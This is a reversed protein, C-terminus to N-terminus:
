KKELIGNKFIYNWQDLTRIHVMKQCLPERAFIRLLEPRMKTHMQHITKILKKTHALTFEFSGVPLELRPSFLNGLQRKLLWWYHRWIPFDIFIVCDAKAFRKEILDLPGYGDILWREQNEIATLIPRTEALPRIQLDKSFQISDVHTLPLDYIEALKRSLKTKGAAINGVVAIRNM